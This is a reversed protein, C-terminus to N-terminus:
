GIKKGTVPDFYEMPGWWGHRRRAVFARDPNDQNWGNQDHFARTHHPPQWNTNQATPAAWAKNGKNIRPDSFGPLAPQSM